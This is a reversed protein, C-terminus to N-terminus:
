PVRLAHVGFPEIHLRELKRSTDHTGLPRVFEVLRVRGSHNLIVYYERDGGTRRVVEIGEQAKVPVRTADATEIVQSAVSSLTQAPLDCGVYYCHGSGAANKTIAPSGAFPGGSYWALTSAGSPELIDAWVTAHAAGFPGEVPTTRGFNHSDFEYVEAGVIDVFPGPITEELMTNDRNRIGSRYTLVVTGGGEVFEKVRAGTDDDVLSYAPMVVVKASRLARDFSTVRVNAGQAAFATYYEHLLKQYNFNINHPQFRHSWLHEYDHVLAVDAAPETSEFVEAMAKADAVTKRVEDYRRRPKGDHDLIGYWYQETGTRCARWRFYVISEAGHAIAQLSWLRLEGPAPTDGLMRWGCPGSQQEMVWFPKEKLGYMLSHRFGLDHPATRGWVYAPYNDWSVFDIYDALRHYDVDPFDGMLNHTIPRDSHERIADVQAQHFDIIAQTSYRQFDLVLGPNHGQGHFSDRSAFGPDQAVTYMPLPVEDFSRYEQSWFVTGWAENLAEVTEYKAALWKRFGDHAAQTFSLTSNHCGFENDTQWATLREHKGFRKAMEGAIRAARERYAINSHCRHHRSGFGRVRGTEDVPLISPDRDVLWKPPTASPTGLVVRLDYRECLSFFREVWSFDYEGDTPELRAWAFELIRVVSFGAESMLRCDTEWREEPWHEPYYDCGFQLRNSM